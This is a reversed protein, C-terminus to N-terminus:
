LCVLYLPTFSKSVQKQNLTSAIHWNSTISIKRGRINWGEPSIQGQWYNSQKFGGENIMIFNLSMDIDFFQHALLYDLFQLFIETLHRRIVVSTSWDSSGSLVPTSWDSSGGEFEPGILLLDVSLFLFKQWYSFGKKIPPVIFSFEGWYSVFSSNSLLDGIPSGNLLIKYFRSHVLWFFREWYKSWDTFQRWFLRSRYFM